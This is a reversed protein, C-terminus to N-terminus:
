CEKSHKDTRTTTSRSIQLITTAGVVNLNPLAGPRRQQYIPENKVVWGNCLSCNVWDLLGSPKLFKVANCIKNNKILVYGPFM